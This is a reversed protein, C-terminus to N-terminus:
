KLRRLKKAAGAAAAPRKKSTSKRTAKDALAPAATGSAIALEAKSARLALGNPGGRRQTYGKSFSRILLPKAAKADELSGRELGVKMDHLSLLKTQGSKRAKSVKSFGPDKGVVLVDTRGSVASAVKGGFSTIMKKVRDKGLSLGEGGGVEPFVGTIVFTQGALSGKPAGKGPVPVMFKQKEKKALVISLGADANPSGRAATSGGGPSEEDDETGVAAPKKKVKEKVGSFTWHTKDMVYIVVKRRDAASLDKMGSLSVENMRLLAREFKKRDRVKAPDPLGLWVKSPVRWCELHVWLGYTGSEMMFGVRLAGKEIFPPDQSCQKRAGRSQCRSRNSRAPEVRYTASVEKAAEAYYEWSPTSAGKFDEKSGKYMDSTSQDQAASFSDIASDDFLKRLVEFSAQVDRFLAADGGKDPHCVLIKKFYAKKIFAWEENLSSCSKLGATAVGITALCDKVTSGPM